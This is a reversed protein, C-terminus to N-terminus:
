QRRCSGDGEVVVVRLVVVVVGERGGRGGKGGRGRGTLM